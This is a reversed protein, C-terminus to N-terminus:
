HLWAQAGHRALLPHDTRGTLAVVKTLADAWLCRPAAVSVHACVPRPGAARARASGGFCSTAVAGDALTGWRRVGGHTEDRLVLPLEFDGFARLDGGANVWGAECGHAQLAQVAQDVAHGKGIGGLDLQVTDGLKLLARGVLRWGHPASGLSVDFLGDSGEHLAAAAALVFATHRGVVMGRGAPLAHFRGIDSTAEFRSLQAQVEDIAAFGAQVAAQSARAGHVGIEVLTGLMPRARRLTM